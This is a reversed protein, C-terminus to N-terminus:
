RGDWVVGWGVVPKWRCKGRWAGVASVSSVELSRVRTVTGLAGAPYGGAAGGLGQM